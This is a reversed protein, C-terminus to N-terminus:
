PKRDRIRVRSSRARHASCFTELDPFDDFPQLTLSSELESIQRELLSSLGLRCADLDDLLRRGLASLREAFSAWQQAFDPAANM